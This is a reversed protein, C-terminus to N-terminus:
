FQNMAGTPQKDPVKVLICDVPKGAFETKAPSLIIQKGIWVQEINDMGLSKGIIRLNSINSAYERDRGVFHLVARKDDGVGTKQFTHETVKEITVLTERGQLHECHLWQGGGFENVNM